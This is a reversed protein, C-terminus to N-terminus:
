AFLLRRKMILHLGVFGIYVFGSVVHLKERDFIVGMLTMALSTLLGAKVVRRTYLVPVKKGLTRVTTGLSRTTSQPSQLQNGICSLIEDRLNGSPEYHLLASGARPNISVGLVGPIEILVERVKQAADGDRLRSDRVRMRGNTESVVDM